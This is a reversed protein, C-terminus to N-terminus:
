SVTGGEEWLQLVTSPMVDPDAQEPTQELQPLRYAGYATLVEFDHRRRDPFYKASFTPWDLVDERGEIRGLGPRPNPIAAVGGSTPKVSTRDAMRDPLETAGSPEAIRM